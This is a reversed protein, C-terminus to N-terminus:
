EDQSSDDDEYAMMPWEIMKAKKKKTKVTQSIEKYEQVNPKMASQTTYTKPALPM